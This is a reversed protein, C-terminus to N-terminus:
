KLLKRLFSYIKYSLKLPFNKEEWSYCKRRSAVWVRQSLHTNVKKEIGKFEDQSCRGHIIKIAEKDPFAVNNLFRFNYTSDLCHLKIDSIALAKMFAPQDSWMTTKNELFSSHWNSIFRNTRPRSNFGVVGTNYPFYGVLCKENIQIEEKDYYDKCVLLDFHDLLDFTSSIDECFYTDSDVFFTNEYPSLSFGRIKYLLGDKWDKTELDIKEIIVNTFVDSKYETDTVLSIHANPIVKLLSLASQEAEDIYKKGTAIYLFGNM